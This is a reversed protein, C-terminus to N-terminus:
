SRPPRFSWHLAGSGDAQPYSYRVPRGSELSAATARLLALYSPWGEESDFMLGEEDDANGVRGAHEPDAVLTVGTGDDGIPVLKGYWWDRSTDGGDRVIGCLSRWTSEIRDLSMPWFMMPVRFAAKGEQRVGNHRLLSVAVDDPFRVGLRAQTAALRRPDAPPGLTAYTAPAHARLWTEIRNWVQNTTAAVSSNPHVSVPGNVHPACGIARLRDRTLPTPKPPRNPTPTTMVRSPSPPEPSPILADVLGIFGRDAKAFRRGNM